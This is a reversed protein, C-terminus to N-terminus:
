PKARSPARREPQRDHGVYLDHQLDPTAACRCAPRPERAMLGLGDRRASRARARSRHPLGRLSGASARLVRDALEARSLRRDGSILREFADTMLAAADRAM